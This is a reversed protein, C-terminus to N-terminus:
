PQVESMVFYLMLDRPLDGSDGPLPPRPHQKYGCLVRQKGQVNGSFSASYIPEILMYFYSIVCLMKMYNMVNPSM